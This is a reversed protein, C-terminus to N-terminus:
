MYWHVKKICLESFSSNRTLWALRLMCRSVSSFNKILVILDPNLDNKVHKFSNNLGVNSSLWEMVLAISISPSPQLHMHKVIFLLHIRYIIFRNFYIVILLLHICSILFHDFSSSHFLYSFWAPSLCDGSVKSIMSCLNKGPWNTNDGISGMYHLQARFSCSELMGRCCSM